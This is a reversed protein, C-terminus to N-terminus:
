VYLTTIIISIDVINNIIKSDKVKAYVEIKMNNYGGENKL